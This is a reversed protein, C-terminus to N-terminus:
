DDDVEGKEAKEETKSKIARVHGDGMGMNYTSRHWKVPGLEGKNIKDAVKQPDDSDWPKFLDRAIEFSNAASFKQKEAKGIESGKADFSM